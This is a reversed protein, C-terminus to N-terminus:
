ADPQSTLRVIDVELDTQDRHDTEGRLVCDEDDLERRMQALLPQAQALRCDLRRALSDSGNEHCRECENQAHQREHNGRARARRAAMGDARAHKGSHEERRRDPDEENRQEEPDNTAERLATVAGPGEGFTRSLGRGVVLPDDM